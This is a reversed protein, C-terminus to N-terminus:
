QYCTPNYNSEVATVTQQPLQIDEAGILKKKIVAPCPTM